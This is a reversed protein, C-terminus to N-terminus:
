GDVWGDIWGGGVWGDKWGDVLHGASEKLAVWETQLLNAFQQQSVGDRYYIIQEPLVPCTTVDMWQAVLEKVAEQMCANARLEHCDVEELLLLMKLEVFMEERHGQRCVRGAYKCAYADMSAVLAAISPHTTDAGSGPHNIDAGLIMFPREM